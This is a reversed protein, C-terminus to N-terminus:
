LLAVKLFEVDPSTFIDFLLQLSGELSCSGCLLGNCLLCSPLVFRMTSEHGESGVEDWSRNPRSKLYGQDGTM